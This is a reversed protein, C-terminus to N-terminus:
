NYAIYKGKEYEIYNGTQGATFDYIEVKRKNDTLKRYPKLDDFFIDKWSAVGGKGNSAKSYSYGGFSEANLNSPKNTAEFEKIKEELEILDRPVALSYIVGEFEENYAGTVTIQNDVVSIVKLVTDNMTSGELKIYQGVLYKGNVQIKNEEIKILGKEGFKYFYNNLYRLIKNM